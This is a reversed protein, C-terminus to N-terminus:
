PQMFISAPSYPLRSTLYKMYWDKDNKHATRPVRGETTQGHKM